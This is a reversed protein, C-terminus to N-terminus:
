IDYNLLITKATTAISFLKTCQGGDGAAGGGLCLLLNGGGRFFCLVYGGWNKKNIIILGGFFLLVCYCFGWFCCCVFLCFGWGFGGGDVYCVRFVNVGCVFLFM